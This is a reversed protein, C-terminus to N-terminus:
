GTMTGAPTLKVVCGQSSGGSPFAKALAQAILKARAAYGESSYHIGDPAFWGDQAVANWDFVRLNPYKSCAHVLTTNWLQMDYESWPGSSNLTKLNVWMVPQGHAARMMENIRGMRGVSSGVAVNATDNTGLAIVWCGHYGDSDWSTAVEYGNAQGPLKEVVSRGGSADIRSHKIGVDAYRAALRQSADPLFGPDVMGVSTSDGIHAVDRCSTFGPRIHQAQQTRSSRPSPSTAATPAQSGKPGPLSGQSRPTEAGSASFVGALSVGTLALAVAAVTGAALLV